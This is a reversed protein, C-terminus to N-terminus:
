EGALLRWCGEVHRFRYTGIEGSRSVIQDDADFKARQFRVQFEDGQPPLIRLDLTQYGSQDEIGPTLYVWRNDVIGVRFADGDGDTRSRGSARQRLTHSRRLADDEAFREFFAAYAVKECPVQGQVPDVLDKLGRELEAARAAIMELACDNAALRQAQGEEEANWRCRAEKEARWADQEAALRARARESLRTELARYAADLRQQQHIFEAEICAQMAWTAGAAEDLCVSYEARLPSGAAASQAPEAPDAQRGGSALLGGTVFFLPLIRM